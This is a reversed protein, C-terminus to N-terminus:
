YNTLRIACPYDGGLVSQNSSGHIEILGDVNGSGDFPQGWLTRATTLKTASAANGVFNAAYVNAYELSSDGINYTNTATPLLDETTL